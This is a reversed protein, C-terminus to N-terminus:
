HCGARFVVSSSNSGRRRLLFYKLGTKHFFLSAPSSTMAWLASFHTILTINRLRSHLFLGHSSTVLTESACNQRCSTQRQKITAAAGEPTLPVVGALTNSCVRNAKIKCHASVQLNEGQAKKRAAVKQFRKNNLFVNRYTNDLTDKALYLTHSLQCVAGKPPVCVSMHVNVACCSFRSVVRCLCVHM